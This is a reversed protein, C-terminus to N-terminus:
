QESVVERVHVVRYGMCYLERDKLYKLAAEESNFTAAIGGNTHERIDWWERAPKPESEPALIYRVCTDHLKMKDVWYPDGNSELKVFVEKPPSPKYNLPRVLYMQGKDCYAEPMLEVEQGDSLRATLKSM